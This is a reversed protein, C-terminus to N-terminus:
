VKCKDNFFDIMLRMGLAYDRAIAEDKDIPGRTMWGHLMEPFPVVTSAGFREVLLQAIKGGPHLKAPDDGAPALLLPRMTISDADWGHGAPHFGIGGDLTLADMPPFLEHGEVDSLMRAVVIAGWCFGVAGCSLLPPQSQASQCYSITAKLKRATEEWPLKMAKKMWSLRCIMHCINSMTKIPWGPRLAAARAAGDGFLDPCVAIFGAEALADCIQAHRGTRLGFIDHIVLIMRRAPQSSSRPM